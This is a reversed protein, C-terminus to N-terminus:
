DNNEGKFKYFRIYCKKCCYRKEVIRFDSVVEVLLEKNIENIKIIKTNCHICYKCDVIM